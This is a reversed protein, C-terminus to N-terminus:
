MIGTFTLTTIPSWLGQSETTIEIVMSIIIEQSAYENNAKFGDYKISTILTHLIDKELASDFYWYGDTEYFFLVNMDVALDENTEVDTYTKQIPTSYTYTYNISDYTVDIKTYDIKVRLYIDDPSLNKISTPEDLVNLEPYIISGLIFGGGLDYNVGSLSGDITDVGSQTSLVFWAFSTAVFLFASAILGILSLTMRKKM